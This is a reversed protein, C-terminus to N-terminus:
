AAEDLVDDVSLQGACPPAPPEQLERDCWDRIARVTARDLITAYCDLVHEGAQVALFSHDAGGPHSGFGAQFKALPDSGNRHVILDGNDRLEFSM